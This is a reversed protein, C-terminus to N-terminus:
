VVAAQFVREEPESSGLPTPIQLILGCINDQNKINLTTEMVSGGGLDDLLLVDNVTLGQTFETKNLLERKAQFGQYSKTASRSSLSFSTPSLKKIRDLIDSSTEPVIFSLDVLEGMRTQLLQLFDYITPTIQNSQILWLM